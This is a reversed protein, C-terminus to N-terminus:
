SEIHYVEKYMISRLKDFNSLAFEAQDSMLELPIFDGGPRYPPQSYAVPLIEFGLRKYFDLRREGYESDGAREAELIIPKDSKSQLLKVLKEGLKHGRMPPEVALHELYIFEDFEWYNVFGIMSNNMLVAMCNFLTNSELLRIFDNKLHRQEEPFTDLYLTIIEEAFHDNSSTIRIFDM